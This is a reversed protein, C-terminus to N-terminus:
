NELVSGRIQLSTRPASPVRAERADHASPAPRIPPLPQAAALRRFEDAEEASVAIGSLPDASATATAEGHFPMAAPAHSKAEHPRASIAMGSSSDFLAIDFIEPRGDGLMAQLAEAGAEVRSALILCRVKPSAGALAPCLARLTALNEAVYVSAAICEGIAGTTVTEVARLLVAGGSADAALADIVGGGASPPLPVGRAAVRLGSEILLPDQEVLSVLSQPDPFPLPKLRAAPM